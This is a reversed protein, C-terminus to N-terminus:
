AGPLTVALGPHIASMWDNAVATPM